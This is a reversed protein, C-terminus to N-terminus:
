TDEMLGVLLCLFLIIGDFLGLSCSSGGSM